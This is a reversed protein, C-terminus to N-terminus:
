LEIFEPTLVNQYIKILAVSPPFQNRQPGASGPNLYLVDNKILSQPQHTHGFIVAHFGATKPNLDILDINHLAYIMINKIEIVDAAPIKECWKGYDMNGRVVYVPAMKKLDNIIAMSGIDGAHIITDVNQFAEFVEPRLLGHTDSIVGIVSDVPQSTDNKNM